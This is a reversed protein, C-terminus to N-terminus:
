WLSMHSDPPILLWRPLFPLPHPPVYGLQVPSCGIDGKHFEDDTFGDANVEVQWSDNIDLMSCLYMNSVVFACMNAWHVLM